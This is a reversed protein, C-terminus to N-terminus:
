GEPNQDKGWHLFTGRGLGQSSAELAGLSHLMPVQELKLRRLVSPGVLGRTEERGHQCRLLLHPSMQFSARFRSFAIRTGQSHSALVRNYSSLDQASAAPRHASKSLWRLSVHSEQRGACPDLTLM